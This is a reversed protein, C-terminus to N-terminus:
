ATIRAVPDHLASVLALIPAPATSLDGEFRLEGAATASERRRQATAIAEPDGAWVRRSLDHHVAYDATIRLDARDPSGAGVEIERDHFRVFWSLTGVASDARGPPPNTLDECICYDGVDVGEPLLEAIIAGVAELWQPSVYEFVM